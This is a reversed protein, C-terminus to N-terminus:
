IIRGFFLEALFIFLYIGYFGYAVTSVIGSIKGYIGLVRAAILKGSTKTGTTEARSRAELFCNLGRSGFIIAIISGIPFGSIIAATLSKKFAEETLETVYPDVTNAPQQVYPQQVYPQQNYPQQQNQPDYNNM